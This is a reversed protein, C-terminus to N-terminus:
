SLGDPLPVIADARIAIYEANSGPLHASHLKREPCLQQRGTLCYTCHGCTILPNATVALGASLAPFRQQASAGIQDIWGSFEHGMVLPPKRLSNHGLFGSLESGCIGSYAVKVLVEDPQVTPVAVERVPMQHPGEYVLAQMLMKRLGSIN